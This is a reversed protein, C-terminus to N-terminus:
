NADPALLDITPFYRRYRRRDRTLLPIREVTAHAGIFFDPLVGTRVGGAARYRLFIKGALFLAPSPMSAVGIGLQRLVFKPITVQGDETVKSTAM